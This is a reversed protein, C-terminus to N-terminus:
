CGVSERPLVVVDFEEDVSEESEVEEDEGYREGIFSWGEGELRARHRARNSSAASQLMRSWRNEPKAQLPTPTPNPEEDDFGPVTWLGSESMHASSSAINASRSLSIHLDFHVKSITRDKHPSNRPSMTSRPPTTQPTLIQSQKMAEKRRHISENSSNFSDRRPKKHARTDHHSDDM